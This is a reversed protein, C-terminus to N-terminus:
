SVSFGGVVLINSSWEAQQVTSYSSTTPCPVRPGRVRKLPGSQATDMEIHPNHSVGRM